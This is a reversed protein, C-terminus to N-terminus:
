AAPDAHPHDVVEHKIIQQHELPRPTLHLQQHSLM